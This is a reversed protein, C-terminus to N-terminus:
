EESPAIRFYSPKRSALLFLLSSIVTYVGILAVSRAYGMISALVGLLIPAMVNGVREAQRYLGLGQGLGIQQVINLQLAMKAQNSVSLSHALGLLVIGIAVMLTNAFFFFPILALGSLTGGWFICSKMNHHRDSWRSLSQSLLIMVLSYGMVYRGTDSQSNGLEKLFLPALYYVFGILCIKNPISQFFVLSAFDRDSFLRFFNRPTPLATRLNEAWPRKKIEQNDSRGIGPKEILFLYLFAISVIALVGGMFFIVQFGVRDALMGGIASGCLTGAYFASLFMAMGEARNAITTTDIIYGQVTMLVIGFGFGVLSRYVILNVIGTATGTLLLGAGSILAGTLFTKKRGVIDSWAGGVPLSVAVFFMFASIPLGIIVEQTLGWLPRYLEQAYLPLFSISLSEAFVVIFLAPRIL